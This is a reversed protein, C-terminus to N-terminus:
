DSSASRWIAAAHRGTPKGRAARFSFYREPHCCTCEVADLGCEIECGALQTRLMGVLDLFARGRSRDVGNAISTGSRHDETFRRAVEDGVEACCAGLGPGCEAILDAEPEAARIAAVLSPVVGALVGRWGAHAIGVVEGRRDALLVPICDAGTVLLAVGARRTWLADARLESDPAQVGRGEDHARVEFCTTGHELTPVAARGLDFGAARAFRSRNIMVRDALDGGHFALNLSRYPGTSVGGHRTSVAADM